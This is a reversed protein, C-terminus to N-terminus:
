NQMYNKKKLTKESIKINELIILIKNKSTKFTKKFQQDM